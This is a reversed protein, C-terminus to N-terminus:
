GCQEKVEDQHKKAKDLLMLIPDEHVDVMVVQIDNDQTQMQWYGKGIHKLSQLNYKAWHLLEFVNGGTEEKKDTYCVNKIHFSLTHKLQRMPASLTTDQKSLLRTHTEILHFRLCSLADDPTSGEGQVKVDSDFFAIAMYSLNHLYSNKEVLVHIPEVVEYRTDNLTEVYTQM